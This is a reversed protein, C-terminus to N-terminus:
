NEQNILPLDNRISYVNEGFFLFDRNQASIIKLFNSSNGQKPLMWDHLEIILIPFKQVWETNASFLEDEFGEIDIKIIFPIYESENYIELLHNVSIIRTEGQTDLQM